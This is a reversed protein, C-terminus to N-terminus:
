AAAHLAHKARGAHLRLRDDKITDVSDLWQSMENQDVVQLMTMANARASSLNALTRACERRMEATHFGGDRCLQILHHLFSEDRLLVEQCNRASSLNALACIAHQNCCDFDVRCLQVLASICEEKCLVEIMNQQTSLECFIQAANVQSEYKGSSAMVLVPAVADTIEEYTLEPLMEADPLPIYQFNIVSNPSSCSDASFKSRVTRYITNFPFGEGSLRNGEVIHSGCGNKFVNFEFKCRTPGSLYICEWRCKDPFFQFSVESICSLEVEVIDILRDIDHDCTFQTVAIHFPEDPVVVNRRSTVVIAPPAKSALPTSNVFPSAISSSAKSLQPPGTSQLAPSHYASFSHPNVAQISRYKADLDLEQFAFDEVNISSVASSNLNVGSGGIDNFESFSNFEYDQFPKEDAHLSQLQSPAPPPLPQKEEIDNFHFNLKNDM